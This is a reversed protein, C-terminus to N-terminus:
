AIAEAFKDAENGWITWNSRPARAFLELYPGDVLHEVMQHMDDPKRSHERVPAVILNRVSASKYTPRGVTGLIFPENASRLVYGTGFAWKKGTSSQKAWSGGTKFTFGWAKMLDLAENIMPWTAWMIMLSDPAALQGVPLARLETMSMCQYHAQASKSEGKASHLTFRWPPDCLIAKYRLPILDAFPDSV